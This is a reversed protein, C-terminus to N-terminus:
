LGFYGGDLRHLHCGPKLGADGRHWQGTTMIGAGLFALTILGAQSSSQVMATAIIGTSVARLPHSTSSVIWHNFRPGVVQKLALELQRMGFPVDGFWGSGALIGNVV